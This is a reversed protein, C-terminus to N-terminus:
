LTSSRITDIVNQLSTRVVEENEDARILNECRRSVETIEPFGLNGAAGAIKHVRRRVSELDITPAELDKAFGDAQSILHARFRQSLQDLMDTATQTEVPGTEPADDVRLQKVPNEGVLRGCVSALYDPEVPKSIYDDCGAALCQDREHQMGHATLAVIPIRLGQARLERTANYGDLVPMQMDMLVLDIGEPDATLRDVAERGNGCVHVFAGRERLFYAVVEQVHESDEALLIRVGKLPADDGPGRSPESRLDDLSVIGPALLPGTVDDLDLRVSFISGEGLVSTLSLNGGLLDVLRTAIALGLGTGGGDGRAIGRDFADFVRKQIEPDIGPGTDEVDFRIGDDSASIRLTVSGAHTYKVANGLLNTLIQILRMSDTLITEPVSSEVRITFSLGKDIAAGSASDAAQRVCDLVRTPERRAEVAGAEVKSLDLIDNIISLLSQGNSDIKSLLEQSQNADQKGERLMRAFGLVATLPTRLEHSMHALFASKAANAENARALAEELKQASDVLAARRRELEIAHGMSEALSLLLAQKDELKAPSRRCGDFGIYGDAAGDVFVPIGIHSTTRRGSEMDRFVIQDRLLETPSPPLTPPTEPPADSAEDRYRRWGRNIRWGDDEYFAAYAGDAEYFESIESLLKLIADDFQTPDIFMSVVARVIGQLETHRRRRIGSEKFDTVDLSLGRFGTLAGQESHLPRGSLRLWRVDGDASRYRLEVNRFPAHDEAARLLVGAARNADEDVLWDKLTTGVIDGPPRGLLSTIQESAYTYRGDADTEWIAEGAAQAIDRFRNESERLAAQAAVRETMDRVIVCNFEQGEHEIYNCSIEVPFVSGDRRRHKSELLLSKRERLEAWHAPWQGEPLMVDIDFVRLQRIEDPSYGLNECAARNGYLFGADQAVWMIGDVAHEMTFRTVRLEANLEHAETIDRIFATFCQQGGLKWPSIALEVPFEEGGKRIANIEIRKRLVPGEGTELYHRMGAAHAERLGPPIILEALPQGVAEDSTYGFIDSAPKNFEIVRSKDDITVIADLASGMIADHRHASAIHRSVLSALSQLGELQDPSISRPARDIVCLSGLAYGDEDVIPVGAYFRIGPDGTVLPNDDFRPDAAADEVVLPAAGLITYGCFAQERPTGNVGLGICGKFWQQEEDLITVLAIPCGTMLSASRVLEDTWDDRQGNLISYSRVARQRAHEDPPLPAAPM